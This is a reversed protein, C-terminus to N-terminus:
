DLSKLKKMHVYTPPFFMSDSGRRPKFNLADYGLGTKVDLDIYGLNRLEKMRQFQRNIRKAHDAIKIAPRDTGVDLYSEGGVSLAQLCNELGLQPYTFYRFAINSLIIDYKERFEIPMREASLVVMEVPYSVPEVSFTLNTTKVEPCIQEADYCAEGLLGGVDLLKLEDKDMDQKIKEVFTKFSEASFGYETLPRNGYGCLGFGSGSGGNSWIGTVRVRKWFYLNSFMELKYNNTLIVAGAQTLKDRVRTLYPSNGCLGVLTGHENDSDGIFGDGMFVSGDLHWIEDEILNMSGRKHPSYNKTHERIASKVNKEEEPSLEVLPDGKFYVNEVIADLEKETHPIFKGNKLGDWFPKLILEEM